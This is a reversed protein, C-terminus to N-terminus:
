CQKMFEIRKQENFEVTIPGLDNRPVIFGLYDNIFSILNFYDIDKDIYHLWPLSSGDLFATDNYGLIIPYGYALYERVKLPCAEEMNNRYLALSGICIHCKKLVELYESQKLYGHYFVNTTNTDTVGVIHFDFQPLNKAMDEIIDIGHWPQNPTGIFFLGVRKDDSKIKKIILYDDLNISNPITIKKNQFKNNSPHDKIETTVSVLGAAKNLVYRRLYKYTVYRLWSKITKDKKYLLYFEEIDLTNLECIIKYKSALISFNRSWTDYRFYVVDPNFQGIDNILQLNVGLRQKLYHKSEYQHSQLISDNCLPLICFCEVDVDLARWYDVQGKIKKTVGDNRTIDHHILYAIKFVM